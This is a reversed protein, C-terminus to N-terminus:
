LKIGSTYRFGGNGPGTMPPGPYHITITDGNFIIRHFIDHRNVYGRKWHASRDFTDIGIDNPNVKNMYCKDVNPDYKIGVVRNVPFHNTSNVGEVSDYIWYSYNVVPKIATIVEYDKKCGLSFLCVGFLLILFNKHISTPNM